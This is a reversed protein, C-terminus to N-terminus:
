SSVVQINWRINKNEHAHVALATVAALGHLPYLARAAVASLADRRAIISPWADKPAAVLDQALKWAVDRAANMGFDFIHDAVTIRDALRQLPPCSTCLQDEGIRV